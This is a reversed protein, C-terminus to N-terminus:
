SFAEPYTLKPVIRPYQQRWRLGALPERTRSRYSDPSRRNIKRLRSLGREAVRRGRMQSAIGAAM